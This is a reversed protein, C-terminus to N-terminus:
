LVFYRLDLIRLGMIVLAHLVHRIIFTRSVYYFLKVRLLTSKNGSTVQRNTSYKALSFEIKVARTLETEEIM